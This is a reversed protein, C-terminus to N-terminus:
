LTYSYSHFDHTSSFRGYSFCNGEWASTSFIQRNALYYYTQAGLLGFIAGTGGISLPTVDALYTM